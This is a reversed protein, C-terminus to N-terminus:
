PKWITHTTSVVVLPAESSRRAPGDSRCQVAGRRDEQAVGDETHCPHDRARDTRSGVLRGGEHFREARTSALKQASRRLVDSRCWRRVLLEDTSQGTHDLERGPEGGGMEWRAEGKLRLHACPARLLRTRRGVEDGPLQGERLRGLGDQGPDPAHVVRGAVGARHPPGGIEAGVLRQGIHHRAEGASGAVSRRRCEEEGSGGVGEYGQREEGDGHDQQPIKGASSNGQQSRQDRYRWHGDEAHGGREGLPGSIVAPSAKMADRRRNARGRAAGAHTQAPRHTLPAARARTRVRPGMQTSSPNASMTHESPQAVVLARRKRPPRQATAKTTTAGQM